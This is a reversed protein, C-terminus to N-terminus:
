AGGEAASGSREPSLSGDYSLRHQKRTLPLLAISAQLSRARQQHPIRRGKWSGRQGTLVRLTVDLAMVGSIIWALPATLAWLPALGYQRDWLRKTDIQALVALVALWFSARRTKGQSALFILAGLPGLGFAILALAIPLGGLPIHSRVIESYCSKSWGQFASKWTTWQRNHLLGRGNVMELRQGSHKLQEALALDEVACSRMEPTNYGGTSLYSERRLLIYQGFAFARRSAPNQVKAPTVRHALLVETLPVLLPTAPGSLTMVNMGMTLLDLRHQLAHGLMLRLTQPEHCTDADTFLLWEGEALTVGLHLAHAKGAWGPPLHDVRQVRVRADRERWQALLQPTCDSSGDDIVLISFNPYDQSALSALCADIHAAENRVPLIISIHPAPTPLAAEAPPRLEHICRRAQRGQWLAVLSAVGLAVVPLGAVLARQKNSRKVCSIEKDLYTKIM